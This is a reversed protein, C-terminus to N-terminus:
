HTGMVISIGARELKEKLSRLTECLQGDKETCKGFHVADPKMSLLREMKEAMGEDTEVMNACGSCRMFACLQVDRDEYAAFSKTRRNMAELCAAGTCVGNAKLCNVIAIKM